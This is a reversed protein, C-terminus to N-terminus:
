EGAILKELDEVSLIGQKQKVMEGNKFVITVPISMVHYEEALEKSAECDVSFCGIEPHKEAFSEFIPAYRKCPGCWEAMFKVLSYETEEVKNQFNFTEIVM